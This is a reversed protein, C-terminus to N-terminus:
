SLSSEAAPMASPPGSSGVRGAALDEPGIRNPLWDAIPVRQGKRAVSVLCSGPESGSGSGTITVRDGDVRSPPEVTAITPTSIRAAWTGAAGLVLATLVFLAPTGM